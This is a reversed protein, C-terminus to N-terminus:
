IYVIRWFQLQFEFNIVFINSMVYFYITAHIYLAKILYIFM